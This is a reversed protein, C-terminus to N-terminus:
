APSSECLRGPLYGLSLSKQARELVSEIAVQVPEIGLPFGYLPFKGFPLLREEGEIVGDVQVIQGRGVEFPLYCCVGLRLEAVRAVLTGVALLHEHAEDDVPVAKGFGVLDELAVALISRRNVVHEDGQLFTRTLMGSRRDDHVPAHRKVLVKLLDAGAAKVVEHRAPLGLRFSHSSAKSSSSQSSIRRM